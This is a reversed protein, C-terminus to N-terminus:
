PEREFAGMDIRLGQVRPQGALDTEDASTATAPDGQDVCPSDAMLHYDGKIWLASPDGPQGPQNLDSGQVWRGRAVFVPDADLNGPGAPGGEVDSYTLSVGAGSPWSARPGNYYVISNTLILAVSSIGELGNEVLTCNRVTPKDGSIGQLRNGAILCQTLIPVNGILVGRGPMIYSISEIGSGGNATVMCRDLTLGSRNRLVVGSNSNDAICCGMILPASGSCVVGNLAGTLSLGQIVTKGTEGNSCTLSAAFGDIVTAM